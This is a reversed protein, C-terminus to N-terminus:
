RSKRQEMAIRHLWAMVTEKLKRFSINHKVIVTGLAPPEHISQNKDLGVFYSPNMIHDSSNIHARRVFTLTKNKEVPLTALKKRL